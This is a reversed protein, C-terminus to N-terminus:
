KNIYTGHLQIERGRWLLLLQKALDTASIIMMMIMVVMMLMMLLLLLLELSGCCIALKAYDTGLNSMM